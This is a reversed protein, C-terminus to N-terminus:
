LRGSARGGPAVAPALCAALERAELTAAMQGRAERLRAAVRAASAPDAPLNPALLAGTLEDIRAYAPGASASSAAVPNPAALEPLAADLRGLLGLRLDDVLRQRFLAMGQRCFALSDADGGEGHLQARAAAARFSQVAADLSPADCAGTQIAQALTKFLSLPQADAPPLGAARDALSADLDFGALAGWEAKREPFDPRKSLAGALASAAM